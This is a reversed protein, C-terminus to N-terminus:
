GAQWDKKEDHGLETERVRNVKKSFINCLLTLRPPLGMKTPNAYSNCWHAHIYLVNMYEFDSLLETPL